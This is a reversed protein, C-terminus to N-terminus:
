ITNIFIGITLILYIKFIIIAKVTGESCHVNVFGEFGVSCGLLRETRGAGVSSLSVSYTFQCIFHNFIFFRQTPLPSNWGWVERLVTRSGRSEYPKEVESLWLISPQQSIFCAWVGFPLHCFMFAMLGSVGESSIVNSMWEKPINAVVLWDAVFLRMAIEAKGKPSEAKESLM